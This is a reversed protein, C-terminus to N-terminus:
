ILSKHVNGMCFSDFIISDQTTQPTSSVIYIQIYIYIYIYIYTYIILRHIYFLMLIVDNSIIFM